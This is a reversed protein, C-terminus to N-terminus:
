DEARVRERERADARTTRERRQDALEAGDVAVCARQDCLLGAGGDAEFARRHQARRGPDDVLEDREHPLRAISASRWGVSASTARSARTAVDVAERASCSLGRM